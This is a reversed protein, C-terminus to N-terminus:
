AGSSAIAETYAVAQNRGAQKARYLAADAYDILAKPRSNPQAITSAIGCSLTVYDNVQSKVHPLQAARLTECLRDGM